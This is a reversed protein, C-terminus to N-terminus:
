SNTDEVSSGFFETDRVLEDSLKARLDVLWDPENEWDEQMARTTRTYRYLNAFRRCIPMLALAAQDLTFQSRYGQIFAAQKHAFEGGPALTKLQCLAQTVDMIYWHYMADDFDIVSCAQSIEDYFVNDPEFDYHILGYNEAHIPLDAFTERLLELEALALREDDLQRLECEIWNFVDVHTWRKTKPNTFESSLRHLHGLAAGYAFLIKDDSGSESIEKGKVRKFVSAYYEGWPTMKQVMVEGSKAPVPELAPFQQSRLYAVFELEALINEKKKESTPCYRLFCVEGNIRFPYIANASIRFYQFLELSPEDYCWNKVLMQALAQNNFLHRLKMM